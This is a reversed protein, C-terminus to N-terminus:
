WRRARASQQGEWWNGTERVGRFAVNMVTGDGLAIVAQIRWVRNTDIADTPIVFSGSITNATPDRQDFVLVQDHGASAINIGNGWPGGGTGEDDDTDLALAAVTRDTDFLTNLQFTVMANAGSRTLTLTLLDASNLAQGHQAHDIDGTARSLSTGHPSSPQTDAGTDDYVYDRYVLAGHCLEATGGNWSDERCEPQPEATGRPLSTLSTVAIIAGVIAIRGRRGRM